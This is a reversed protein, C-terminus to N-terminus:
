DPCRETEMGGEVPDEEDDRLEGGGAPSRGHVAPQTGSSLGDTPEADDELDPHRPSDAPERRDPRSSAWVAPSKTVIGPRFRPYQADSRDTRQAALDARLAFGRISGRTAAVAGTM